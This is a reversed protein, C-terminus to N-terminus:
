IINPGVIGPNIVGSPFVSDSEGGGLFRQNVIERFSNMDTQWNQIKEKMESLREVESTKTVQYNFSGAFLLAPITPKEPRQLRAENISLTMPCRDLRYVFNINAQVPANGIERWPGPAILTETIYKSVVNSEEGFAVLSKPSISVGQYEANPLKEIYKTAVDPVQMPNNQNGFAQSFTVSGPQAVINVGSKFSLQAARANLVPQRALEWDSPIIGSYKLFDLNLITPNLGKAAITIALEQIDISRNESTTAQM